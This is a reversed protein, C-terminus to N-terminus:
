FWKKKRFYILQGIMSGFIVALALPYGLSWDLEPMSAFNMGWLSALLTPPVFIATLVTLFRIVDNTRAQVSSYHIELSSNLLERHTDATDNIRILHDHIDSFYPVLPQSIMTYHQRSLQAVIEKQPLVIRKLQVIDRRLAFISKLTDEDASGLVDDEVQDVEYEFVDLIGNYNDVVTDIMAHFLYDAGRSLLREDREARSYLYDFIRHEDYHVTVLTNKSLFFDLEMIKLGEERGVYDVVQFVLFLYRDYDDIKTRPKESIVDEIALPHFKFDHTLVFSEQDSPKCMDVWLLAGPVSALRDFDAVGELVEVGENPLYYFSRIM